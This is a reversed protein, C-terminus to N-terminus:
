LIALVIGRLQDKRTQDISASGIGRLIQVLAADDLDPRISSLFASFIESNQINKLVAAVRKSRIEDLRRVSHSSYDLVADFSQSWANLDWWWTLVPFISHALVVCM